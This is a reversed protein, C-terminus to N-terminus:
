KDFDIRDVRSAEGVVPMYMVEYGDDVMRKILEENQAKIVTIIRQNDAVIQEATKSSAEASSTNIYFVVLGKM